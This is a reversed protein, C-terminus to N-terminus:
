GHTRTICSTYFWIIILRPLSCNDFTLIQSFAAYRTKSHHVSQDTKPPQNSRIHVVPWVLPSRTARRDSRYVGPQLWNRTTNMSSTSQKMNIAELLNRNIHSVITHQHLDLQYLSTSPYPTKKQQEHASRAQFWPLIALSPDIIPKPSTSTWIILSIM